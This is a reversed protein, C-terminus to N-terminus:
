CENEVELIEKFSLLGSYLAKGAIAGALNQNKLAVLDARNKVGGSAIIACNVASQLASLQEFNPGSLTGDRGVDTFILTKAGLKEMQIAFDTFTIDSTELWGNTAVFGNKADIGIVIKEGYQSIAEHVFEPSSVASSGIIVRSIGSNLYAAVQRMDRIGGGVQIALGTKVGIEKILALNVPEGNLAGDLDVIHLYSAGQKQFTLAQEVPNPNVVTEKAFDGQYLRVCKGNKIDIAPYVRM